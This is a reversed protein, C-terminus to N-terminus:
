LVRTELSDGREVLTLETGQRELTTVSCYNPRFVTVSPAGSLHGVIANIAIFHSFVVTNDPLESVTSLLDRHWNQVLDPTDVWEGAMLNRLWTRRDAVDGPTPIETVNPEIVAPKTALDAFASATEQCRAMPSTFVQQIDLGILRKAVAEAQIWGKDSLGPDPHEGWGAAAEGHRVFYIM